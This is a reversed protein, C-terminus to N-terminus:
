KHECVARIFRSSWEGEDRIFAVARDGHDVCLGIANGRRDFDAAPQSTNPETGVSIPDPNRDTIWGVLRMTFVCDRLEVYVALDDPLVVGAGIRLVERDVIPGRPEVDGVFVCACSRDGVDFCIAHNCCHRDTELRFAGRHTRVPTPHVDGRLRAARDSHDICLATLSNLCEEHASARTLRSERGVTRSRIYSGFVAIYYGNDIRLIM